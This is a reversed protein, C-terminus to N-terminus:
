CESFFLTIYFSKRRTEVGTNGELQHVAMVMKMCLASILHFLKNSVVPFLVEVGIEYLNYRMGSVTVLRKYSSM